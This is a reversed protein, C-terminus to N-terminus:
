INKIHRLTFRKGDQRDSKNNYYTIEILDLRFPLSTNFRSMFMEAANKIRSLKHSDVTEAGTVLAGYKRTRVEIFLIEECNEAVIDIEGYRSDRWNRKIIVYGKSKLYEAALDEGTKGLLSAEERETQM